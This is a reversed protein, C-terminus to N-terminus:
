GPSALAPGDRRWAGVLDGNSLHPAAISVPSMVYDIAARVVNSVVDSIADAPGAPVHEATIGVALNLEETGLYTPGPSGPPPPADMAGGM